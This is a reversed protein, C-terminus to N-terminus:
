MFFRLRIRETPYIKTYSRFDSYRSVIAKLKITVRRRRWRRQLLSRLVAIEMCEHTDCANRKLKDSLRAYLWNNFSTYTDAISFPFMLRLFEFRFRCCFNLKLEKTRPLGGRRKRGDAATRQLFARKNIRCRKYIYM